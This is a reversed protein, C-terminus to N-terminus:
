QALLGRMRISWAHQCPLQGVTLTPLQVTMVTANSTFTLPLPQTGNPGALMAMTTGPGPKPGHLELRNSAPWKTMIAYVTNGAKEETYFVQRIFVM